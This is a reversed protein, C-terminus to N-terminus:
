NKSLLQIMEKNRMKIAKELPTLRILTSEGNIEETDVTTLNPDAGHTLLLKAVETRGLSVAQYLPSNFKDYNM